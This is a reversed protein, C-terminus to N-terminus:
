FALQTMICCSPQVSSLSTHPSATRLAPAGHSGVSNSPFTTNQPSTELFDGLVQGLSESITTITRYLCSLHKTIWLHSTSPFPAPKHQRWAQPQNQQIKHCKTGFIVGSAFIEPYCSSNRELANKPHGLCLWLHRKKPESQWTGPDQCVPISQQRMSRSIFTSILLFAPPM